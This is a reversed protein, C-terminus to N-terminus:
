INLYKMFADYRDQMIDEHDSQDYSSIVKYNCRELSQVIPQINSKNIKLTLEVVSSEPSRTILSGLILANNNEVIRASQSLSLDRIQMEMVIIGGKSQVVPMESIVKMLQHISICGMFSEKKSNLVPISTLDYENMIRLVEFLHDLHTVSVPTDNILLERIETADINNMLQDESIIGKLNNDYVVPLHMVKHEDMLTIALDISDAPKLVTLESLDLEEALM